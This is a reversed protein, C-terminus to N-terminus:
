ATKAMQSIKCMENFCKRAAIRNRLLLIANYLSVAVASAGIFLFCFAIAALLEGYPKAVDYIRYSLIGIFASAMLTCVAIFPSVGVSHKTLLENRRCLLATYRTALESLRDYHEIRIDRTFRLRIFRYKSYKKGAPLCDTNTCIYGFTRMHKVVTQMDNPIVNVTSSEAYLGVSGGSYNGNSDTFMSM